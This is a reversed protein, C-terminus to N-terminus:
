QKYYTQSAWNWREASATPIRVKIGGFVADYKYTEKEEKDFKVYKERPKYKRFDPNKIFFSPMNAAIEEHFVIVLELECYLQPTQIKIPITFNVLPVYIPPEFLFHPHFKSVRAQPYEDILSSYFMSIQQQEVNSYISNTLIRSLRRLRAIRSMEQTEEPEKDQSSDEESPWIYEKIGNYWDYYAM